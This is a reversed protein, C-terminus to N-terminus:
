SGPHLALEFIRARKRLNREVTVGREQECGQWISWTLLYEVVFRKGLPEWLISLLIPLGGRRSDPSIVPRLVTLIEVRRKREDALNWANLSSDRTGGFGTKNPGWGAYRGIRM